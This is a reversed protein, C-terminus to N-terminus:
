AFAALFLGLASAMLAHIYPPKGMEKIVTLKPVLHVKVFETDDLDQDGEYVLDSALYISVKNTMIAPNPNMTGLLEVKHARYGTEERLERLAGECNDEGDEVVGGPFELSMIGAGHRWQEVMVFFEGDDKRLLPIVVAWPSANIVNFKATTGNPAIATTECVSFVRTELLTERKTERWALNDFNEGSRDTVCTNLFEIIAKIAGGGCDSLISHGCNEFIITKCNDLLAAIELTCEPPTIWDRDAGLALVPCKIKPLGERCDYICLEDAFAKNVSDITIIERSLSGNKDKENKDRVSYLSSFLKYFQRYTDTDPFKGSWLYKEAMELQAPTGIKRLKAKALELFRYDSATALLILAELRETHACAYSLAIMGGYSHGLLMIKDLGLYERLGEIDAINQAMTYTDKGTYGSRGNGRYDIYVLQIHQALPELSTVFYSHDSGPGGHLVFCVSKKRMVGKDPVFQKGDIDFFIKTGNINAFM